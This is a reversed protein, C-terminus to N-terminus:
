WNGWKGVGEGTQGDKITDVHGLILSSLQRLSGHLFASLQAKYCAPSFCGNQKSIRFVLRM